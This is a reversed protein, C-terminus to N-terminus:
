SKVRKQAIVQAESPKRWHIEMSEVLENIRHKLDSRAAAINEDPQLARKASNTSKLRSKVKNVRENFAAV